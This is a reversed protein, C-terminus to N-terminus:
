SRATRASSESEDGAREFAQPALRRARRLSESLRERRAEAAQDEIEM